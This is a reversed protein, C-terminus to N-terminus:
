SEEKFYLKYYKRGNEDTGKELQERNGHIYVHFNKDLKIVSKFSKEQKKVAQTSIAFAETLDLEHEERYTRDFTNFSEIINDHQLVTKEFEEKEFTENDKFYAVSRNLLDIQDAKDVDFETSLQKTIFQKTIGMFQNTHHFENQEEIVKLFEDKWYQADSSKNAGDTFVIKYNDSDSIILCGKDINKLDFGMDHFIEYSRNKSEMKLYPVDTESKFIGIADTLEDDLIVSKLFVVNLKGENIKPHTSKEYLLMALIQSMEVFSKTESYFQNISHYVENLNLDSTHHFNFVFDKKVNNVLYRLLYEKTEDKVESEADSLFYKEERSKNGVTHTIISHINVQNFDIQNM